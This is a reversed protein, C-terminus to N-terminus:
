EEELKLIDMRLWTFPDRRRVPVEMDDKFTFM